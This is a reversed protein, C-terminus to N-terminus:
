LGLVRVNKVKTEAIKKCDNMFSPKPSSHGKLGKLSPKFVQLSYNEANKILKTINEVDELTFHETITTRFESKIPSAKLM